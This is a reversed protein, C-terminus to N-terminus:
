ALLGTLGRWILNLSGVLLVLLVLRYLTRVPVRGQLWFGIRQAGLSPLVLVAAAVVLALTYQGLVALTGLRVLSMSFFVLSIGFAFEAGRLGIATLYAGLIPGSAGVAGNTTGAVFGVLPALRREAGGTMPPREVRLATVVYWVTFLGLALSIAPAPLVILLFVGALSGIFAGLLLSRLRRATSAHARHYWAQVSSLIPALLSIVIVADKAGLVVALANVGLLAYGLGITGNIFAAVSVVAILLGLTLPDLTV